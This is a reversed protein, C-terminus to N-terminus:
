AKIPLNNRRAKFHERCTLTMVCQAYAAQAPKLNNFNAIAAALQTLKRRRKNNHMNKTPNNKALTRLCHGVRERYQEVRESSEVFGAFYFFLLLESFGKALLVAAGNDDMDISTSSSKILIKFYTCGGGGQAGM